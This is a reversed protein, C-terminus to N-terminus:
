LRAEPQLELRARQVEGCLWQAGKQRPKEGVASNWITQMIQEDTYGLRVLCNIALWLDRSRDAGPESGHALMRHVKPNVARARMWDIPPAPAALLGTAAEFTPAPLEVNRASELARCAWEPADPLREAAELATWQYVHGSEHVSPPALVFGNTLIDLKRSVGTGIVRVHRDTPNRYYLHAGKRTLVAWTPPSQCLAEEVAQLSDCDIVLLGSPRLLISCGLDPSQAWPACYFAPDFPPQLTNLHIYKRAPRKSGPIM